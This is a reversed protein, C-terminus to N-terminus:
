KLEFESAGIKNGETYIEVSYKGKVFASGKEWYPCQETKKNEYNVEQKLTYPLQQGNFSFTGSSTSLVSKDPGLVRLYINKLGKDVVLNELVTFCIKLKQVNKAKKEIVEKGSSKFKVGTVVIGDARLISGLAM